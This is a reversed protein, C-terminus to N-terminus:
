WHSHLQTSHRAVLYENTFALSLYVIRTLPCWTYLTILVIVCFFLCLCLCMKAFGCGCVCVCLREDASVCAYVFGCVCACVCVCVPVCVGVSGCVYVCPLVGVCLSLCVCLLDYVRLSKLYISGMGICGLTTRWAKGNKVLLGKGAVEEVETSGVLREVRRDFMRCM